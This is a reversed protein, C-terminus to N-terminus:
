DDKHAWQCFSFRWGYNGILWDFAHLIEDLITWLTGNSLEWWIAKLSGSEM